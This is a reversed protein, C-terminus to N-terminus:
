LVGRIDWGIENAKSKFLELQKDLRGDNTKKYLDIFSQIKALEYLRKQYEVHNTHLIANVFKGLDEPFTYQNSKLENEIIEDSIYKM